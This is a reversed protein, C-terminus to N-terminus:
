YLNRESYICFLSKLSSYLLYLDRLLLSDLETLLFQMLLQEPDPRPTIHPLLWLYSASTHSLKRGTLILEHSGQLKYPSRAYRIRQNMEVDRLVHWFM